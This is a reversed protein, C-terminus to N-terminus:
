VCTSISIVEAGPRCLAVGASKLRPRASSFVGRCVGGRPYPPSVRRRGAPEIQAPGRVGAPWQLAERASAPLGDTTSPNGACELEHAAKRNSM